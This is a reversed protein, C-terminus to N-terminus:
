RNIKQKNQGAAKRSEEREHKLQEHEYYKKLLLSDRSKIQDDTYDIKIDFAQSFKELAATKEAVDYKKFYDIAAMSHESDLNIKLLNAQNRWYEELEPQDYIKHYAWFASVIFTNPKMACQEFRQKNLQIANKYDNDYLYHQILQGIVKGKQIEFRKDDLVNWIVERTPPCYGDIKALYIIVNTIDYINPLNCLIRAAKAMGKYYNVKRYHEMIMFLMTNSPATINAFYSDIWTQTHPKHGAKSYHHIFIAYTYENPAISNEQMRAFLTTVKEVKGAEMYASMLRNYGHVNALSSEWSDLLDQADREILYNFVLSIEDCGFMKPITSRYQDVLSVALEKSSKSFCMPIIRKMVWAYHDLAEPKLKKMFDVAKEVVGKDLYYRICLDVTHNSFALQSKKLYSIITDANDLQKADLFYEFIMNYSKINPKVKFHDSELKTWITLLMDSAVGSENVQGGKALRGVAVVSKFFEMFRNIAFINDNLFGVKELAHFLEISVLAKNNSKLFFDILENLEKKDKTPSNLYFGLIYDVLKNNNILSKFDISSFKISDITMGKQESFSPRQLKNNSSNSFSNIKPKVNSTTTSTNFCRNNSTIQQQTIYSSSTLQPQQKVLLFRNFGNRHIYNLLM